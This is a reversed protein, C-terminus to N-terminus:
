VTFLGAPGCTPLWCRSPYCMCSRRSPAVRDFARSPFFAESTYGNVFVSSFVGSYLLRVWSIFSSTFGLHSLTRFLFGWDVRDFAKEQDLSLIAGATDSENTYDIIGRLLVVNEGIYRGKVGGSQDPHVVHQLVGLLRGALARACLKYDTNLLSIPRWNKPDTRDGKKFLLTILAGRLSKPLQGTQFSRNLVDVLDKGITHWFRSYFEVPLGDSGPSKGTAAGKLASHVEAVSLLGDCSTETGSPLRSSVNNLLEQQTTADTPCATFLTSFFAVWSRCIGDIDSRLVGDPGHIASVWEEIGHKKELRLFFRTSTEGEEAWQIRSRVRAGEAEHRDLATIRTLVKEYVDLLSVLGSDLRKRLHDALATLLSYSSIDTKKRHASHRVAIGKIREKGRDWWAQLTPFSGKRSRWFTWFSEIETTFAEEHLLSVNLRWRGPGRPICSPIVLETYVASHDSYPCVLLDCSSVGSVWSVPCGFFDIRSAYTGDPRMWSFSVGDPHLYRWTDIVCCARFLSSLASSGDRYLSGVQGGRRDLNRNFVANFDGCLVTPVALDVLDACTKFFSDREPNRNPAYICAIRYFLGRDSFEAMLFRGNLEIWSRHLILRSRYLIVSKVM